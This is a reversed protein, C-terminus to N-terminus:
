VAPFLIIEAPASIAFFPAGAKASGPGLSLSLLPAAGPPLCSQHDDLPSTWAWTLQVETLGVSKQGCTFFRKQLHTLSM